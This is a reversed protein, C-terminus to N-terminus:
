IMHTSTNTQNQETDRARERRAWRDNTEGLLGLTGMGDRKPYEIYGTPSQNLLRIDLISIIKDIFKTL